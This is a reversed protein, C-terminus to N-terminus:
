KLKIPAKVDTSVFHKVRCRYKNKIILKLITSEQTQGQNELVMWVVVFVVSQLYSCSTDRKQLSNLIWIFNPPM